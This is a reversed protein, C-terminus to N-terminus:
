DISNISLYVLIKFLVSYELSNEVFMMKFLRVPKNTKREQRNKIIIIIKIKFVSCVSFHYFTNKNCFSFTGQNYNKQIIRLQDWLVVEGGRWMQM